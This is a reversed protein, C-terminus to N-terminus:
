VGPEHPPHPADANTDDSADGPTEYPNALSTLRGEIRAVREVLARLRRDLDVIQALSEETSREVFTLNEELRELREENM